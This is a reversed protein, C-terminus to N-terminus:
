ATVSVRQMQIRKRAPLLHGAPLGIQSPLLDAVADDSAIRDVVQVPQMNAEGCHACLIGDRLQALRRPLTGVEDCVDCRYTLAMAWPLLLIKDEPIVDRLRRDDALAILHPTHHWPCDASRSLHLPRDEPSPVRWESSQKAKMACPLLGALMAAIEQVSAFGEASNGMPAIDGLSACSLTRSSLQELVSARSAATLGCLYCAADQTAAYSGIRGGFLGSGLVGADLMPLCLMRAAFAAEVRSLVSDTCTIMVDYERLHSWGIDAVESINSRWEVLSSRLRFHDALIDAKARGLVRAQGTMALERYVPSAPLNGNEIVDPDILSIVSIDGNRFNALEECVQSGLAGVGILAIRASAMKPFFNM